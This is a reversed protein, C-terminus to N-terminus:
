REEGGNLDYGLAPDWVYNPNLTSGATFWGPDYPVSGKKHPLTWLGAHGDAYVSVLKPDGQPPNSSQWASYGGYHFASTEFFAVQKSPRCFASDKLVSNKFGKYSYDLLPGRYCYSTWTFNRPILPVKTPDSPCHFVALTRTYKKLLVPYGGYMYAGVRPADYAGPWAPGDDAYGMNVFVYYGPWSSNNDQVYLMMAKGFQTANNLCASERAKEKAMTFVPFLIAALVAIIAIVVLLEILTFGTKGQRGVEM